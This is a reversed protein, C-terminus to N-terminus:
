TQTLICGLIASYEKCLESSQGACVPGQDFTTCQTPFTTGNPVCDLGNNETEGELVCSGGLCLPVVM